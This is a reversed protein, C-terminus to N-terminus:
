VMVGNKELVVVDNTRQGEPSLRYERPSLGFEARFVRTFHASNNFGWAFALESISRNALRSNKLSRACGALRRRLIHRSVSNDEDRFLSHLYRVSIRLHAAIVEPSLEPNHIHEDIFAYAQRLHLSQLKSRVGSDDGACALTGSILELSSDLISNSAEAALYDAQEFLSMFHSFAIRGIGKRCDFAKTMARIPTSIRQRLREGPVRLVLQRFHEPILWQYDLRSDYAIFEGPGVETVEGSQELLARGEIQMSLLMYDGHTHRVEQRGHSATHHNAEVLSLCLDSVQRCALTGAFNGDVLDRSIALPVCGGLIAQQWAEVRDNPRVDDTSFSYSM